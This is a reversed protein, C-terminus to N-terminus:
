NVVISTTLRESPVELMGQARTPEEIATSGKNHTCHTPALHTTHKHTHQGICFLAQQLGPSTTFPSGKGVTTVSGQSHQRDGSSRRTMCLGLKGVVVVIGLVVCVCVCQRIEEREGCRGM